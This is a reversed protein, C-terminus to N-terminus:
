ARGWYRIQIIGLSRLRAWVAFLLRGLVPHKVHIAWDNDDLWRPTPVRTGFWTYAVRLKRNHPHDYVGM